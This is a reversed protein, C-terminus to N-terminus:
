SQSLIKNIKFLLFHAGFIGDERLKSGARAPPHGTGWKTRGRDNLAHVGHSFVLERISLTPEFSQNNVTMM